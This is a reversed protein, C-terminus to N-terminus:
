NLAYTITVSSTFEVNGEELGVETGGGGYGDIAKPYPLIDYPVSEKISLIKGLKAGSLKALQEAQDKAKAIAEERAENQIETPDDVTFRINNIDTAGASGITQVIADADELNRVTLEIMHYATYGRLQPSRTPYYDYDPSVSYQITQIDKAEINFRSIENKIKALTDANTAQADAVNKAQTSVAFDVKAVDPTAYATGTGTVSLGQEGGSEGGPAVVSPNGTAIAVIAVAALLVTAIMLGILAANSGAPKPAPLHPERALPAPPEPRFPPPPTPPQDAFKPGAPERDFPPSSPPPTQSWDPENGQGLPNLNEDFEM